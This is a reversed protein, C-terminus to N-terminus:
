VSCSVTPWSIIIFLSFAQVHDPRDACHRTVTKILKKNMIADDRGALGHFIRAERIIEHCGACGSVTVTKEM